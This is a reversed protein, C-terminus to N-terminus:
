GPHPLGPASGRRLGWMLPAKIEREKGDGEEVKREVAGKGLLHERCVVDSGLDSLTVVSLNRPGPSTGVAPATRLAASHGAHRVRRTTVSVKGQRLAGVDVVHHTAQSGLRQMWGPLAAWGLTM